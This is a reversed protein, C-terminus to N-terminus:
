VLEKELYYLYAYDILNTPIRSGIPVIKLGIKIASTSIGIIAAMEPSIGFAVNAVAGSLLADKILDSLNLEVKLTSLCRKISSEKMVRHLDAISIQLKEIAAIKSRPIDKSNMIERYLGDMLSRFSLLEDKRKEKFNLIDELSVVRDPVPIYKYLEIEITRKETSTERPLVLNTSEQALSWLGPETDNHFRFAAEQMIILSYGINGSFRDLKIKTRTLILSETLFQTEPTEGGLSIINNDPWDIRDWFLLCHRLFVPDIGSNIINLTRGDFTFPSTIIIGRKTM